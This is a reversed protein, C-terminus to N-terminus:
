NRRNGLSFTIPGRVLYLGSCGFLMMCQKHLNYWRILLSLNCHLTRVPIDPLEYPKKTELAAPVHSEAITSSNFLKRLSIQILKNREASKGPNSSVSRHAWDCMEWRPPWVTLLSLGPTWVCCHTWYSKWTYFILCLAEAKFSLM